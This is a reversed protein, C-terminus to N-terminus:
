RLFCIVLTCKYAQAADAVLMRCCITLVVATIAGEDTHVDFAWM